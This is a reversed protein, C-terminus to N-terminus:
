KHVNAKLIAGLSGVEQEWEQTMGEEITGPNTQTALSMCYLLYYTVEKENKSITIKQSHRGTHWIKTGQGPLSDTGGATTACLRLWEVELFTGYAM